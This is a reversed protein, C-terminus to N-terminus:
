ARKKRCNYCSQNKQSPSTFAAKHQADKKETKPKEKHNQPERSINEKRPLNKSDLKEDRRTLFFADASRCIEEL